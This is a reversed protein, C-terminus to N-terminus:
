ATVDGCMVRLAKDDASYDGAYDAGALTLHAIQFVIFRLPVCDKGNWDGGAARWERLCELASHMLASANCASQSWLAQQAWKAYNFGNLM